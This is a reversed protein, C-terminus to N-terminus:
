KKQEGAAAEAKKAQKQKMAEIDRQETDSRM